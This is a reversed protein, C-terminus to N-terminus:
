LFYLTSGNGRKVRSNKPVIVPPLQLKTLKKEEACEYIAKEFDKNKWHVCELINIMKSTKFGIYETNYSDKNESRFQLILDKEERNLKQLMFPLRPLKYKGTVKVVYKYKQLQKQFFKLAQLMAHIEYNTVLQPNSSFLRKQDYKFQYLKYSRINPFGVNNSDVVFIETNGNKLWWKITDEYMKNKEPTNNYTTLLIAYSSKTISDNTFYFLFLIFILIWLFCLWYFM